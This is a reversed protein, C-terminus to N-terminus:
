GVRKGGILLHQPLFLSFALTIVGGCVRVCACVCVRAHVCVCVCVRVCVCVFQYVSVQVCQCVHVRACVRM